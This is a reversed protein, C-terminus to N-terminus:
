VKKTQLKEELQIIQKWISNYIDNYQIKKEKEKIKIKWLLKQKLNPKQHNDEQIIECILKEKKILFM